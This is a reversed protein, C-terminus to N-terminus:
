HKGEMFFSDEQTKWVRVQPVYPEKLAEVDIFELWRYTGKSSSRKCLAVKVGKEAFDDRFLDLM